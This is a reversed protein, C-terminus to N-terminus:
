LELCLLREALYKIHNKTHNAGFALRIISEGESVTPYMAATVALGEKRLKRSIEIDKLENGIKIGRVPSSSNFNIVKEIIHTGQLLADFFKINELLKDQLLYIEHSLHIKSSEIASDVISLPMPNSFMYPNCYCRVIKEDEESYVAIAAGNAGFGKSLSIALILRPHFSELQNLVYGCGNKGQISIGHADDIYVYGKYKDALQMLEKIPILGGMSCVGDAILLPTKKTKYIKELFNDIEELQNFDKLYIEGFQQMLGRQLQISAHSKKDIVFVIGNEHIPYSPMEGSSILPFMGLHAIHLSTFTICYGKFIQNLYTELEVGAAVRLRTRAVAFNVGCKKISRISANILREDQDLGLYSCSMFEILKEDNDLIIERGIREKVILNNIENSAKLQHNKSKLIKQKQWNISM